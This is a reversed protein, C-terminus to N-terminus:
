HRARAWASIQEDLLGMPLPGHRLLEDHFERLDFKEGLVACAQKRLKLIEAMGVTYATAQGPMVIYRDVEKVVQPLSSPINEYLYDIAQQRTWRRDHIGTDVVLRCARKLEQALRGFDSWPDQYLGLEKTILESYLGWGEVYATYDTYRRFTPLDRLRNAISFQLHHGPLAEHYALAEMTFTPLQQLDFLNVYFIGPRSGDAAPGEYFAIGATKERHREVAKVLLEDQPLKTFLKPLLTGVQAIIRSLADLYSQRGNETQPYYFEPNDRAFSFFAGLSGRFGMREKLALMDGQIRTVDKIGLQHIDNASLQTSTHRELSMRYFDAGDPLAWAGAEAPAKEQQKELYTILREYAPVVSLQLANRLADLLADRDRQSIDELKGLKCQFDEYLVNHEVGADPTRGGIFNRCDGIMQPFLFVPPIIGLSARKDLGEIVQRCTKDLAHLRAIYNRADEMDAIGHMNIMFAPFETHMGFKQNILYHHFRYRFCELAQQADHRFIRYNLQDAASLSAPDFQELRQLQDRILDRDAEQKAESLDDLRDQYKKIGLATLTQPSRNVREHFADEFFCRIRDSQAASGYRNMM